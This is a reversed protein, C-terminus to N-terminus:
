YEIPDEITIIKESREKNIADIMAALTTSKGHGNPGVVLVFGQSLKTFVNLVPPLNLEAVTKVTKPILRLAAAHSGNAQYLNVRFRDGTASAISFDLDKRKIFADKREPGALALILGELTEKSLIEQNVLPVLRGDIRLTPYYAPSLHLDSANNQAVMTLLDALYKQPDSM